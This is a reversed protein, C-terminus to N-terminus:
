SNQLQHQHEPGLRKLGPQNKTSMTIMNDIIIEQLDQPNIVGQRRQNNPRRPM